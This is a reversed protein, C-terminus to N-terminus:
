FRYQAKEVKEDISMSEEDKNLFQTKIQDRKGRKLLKIKLVEFDDVMEPEMLRECQLVENVLNQASANKLDYTRLGDKIQNQISLIEENIKQLEKM